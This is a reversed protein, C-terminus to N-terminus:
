GILSKIGDSTKQMEILILGLNTEHKVLTVLISKGVGVAILKGEHFESIVGSVDDNSLELMATEAAGLVAASMAAFVDRNIDPSLDSALMLGDRTIIASSDVDGEEKLRKLMETLKGKITTEM